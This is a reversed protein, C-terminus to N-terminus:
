WLHFTSYVDEHKFFNDLTTGYSIQLVTRLTQM